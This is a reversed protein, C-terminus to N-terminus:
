EHVFELVNIDSVDSSLLGCQRSVPGLVIYHPTMDVKTNHCARWWVLNNVLLRGLLFDIRECAKFSLCKRQYLYYIIM